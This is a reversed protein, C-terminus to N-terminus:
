LFLVLFEDSKRLLSFQFKISGKIPGWVENMEEKEKMEGMEEKDEKDEEM